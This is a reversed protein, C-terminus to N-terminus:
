DIVNQKTCKPYSDTPMEKHQYKNPLIDHETKRGKPIWGGHPIGLEIAVDLAARNAGTQGGSIIKKIM